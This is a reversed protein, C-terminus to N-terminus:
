NVTLQYANLRLHSNDKGVGTRVIALPLIPGVSIAQGPKICGNMNSVNYGPSGSECCFFGGNDFMDWTANACLPKASLSTQTCDSAGPPCCIRNSEKPNCVFSSPCCAHFGEIGTSGCDVEIGSLCIGKRRIAFGPQVVSAM